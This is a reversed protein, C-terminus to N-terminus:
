AEEGEALPEQDVEVTMQVRDDQVEDATVTVGYSEGSDTLTCRTEAGVEADLEDPCDIQEPARGVQQELVTSVQQELEDTPVADSGVSVSCGALALVALAAAAATATLRSRMRAM